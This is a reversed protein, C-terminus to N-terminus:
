YNSHIMVEINTLKGQGTYSHTITCGNEYLGPDLTDTTSGQALGAKLHGGSKKAFANKAGLTGTATITLGAASVGQMFKRRGFKGFSNQGKSKSSDKM